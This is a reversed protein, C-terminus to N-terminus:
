RNTPYIVPVDQQHAATVLEGVADGIPKADELDTGVVLLKIKQQSIGRRVEHLGIVLRRSRKDQLPNQTHAREQRLVLVTLHYVCNQIWVVWRVQLSALRQLLAIALETVAASSAPPAEQRPAEQSPATSLSDLSDNSEDTALEREVRCADLLRGGYKSARVRSIFDSAAVHSECEVICDGSERIAEVMAVHKYGAFYESVEARVDEFEDPDELEEPDIAGVVRVTVPEGVWECAVCRGGFVKSDYFEFAQTAADMQGYQVLISGIELGDVGRERAIKLKEFAGFKSLSDRVEQYVDAYEDDDELEEPDLLNRIVLTSSRAKSVGLTEGGHHSLQQQNRRARDQVVGSKLKSRRKSRRRAVGSGTANEGAARSQDRGVSADVRASLVRSGHVIGHLGLVSVQATEQDPFAATVAGTADDVGLSGLRGYRSLQARLEEEVKAREDPDEIEDAAVVNGVAVKM